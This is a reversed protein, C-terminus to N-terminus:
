MWRWRDVGNVNFRRRLVADSQFRWLSRMIAFHDFDNQIISQPLLDAHLALLGRRLVSVEIWQRTEALVIGHSVQLFEDSCLSSCTRLLNAYLLPASDMRTKEERVAEPVGDVLIVYRQGIVLYVVAHSQLQVVVSTTADM